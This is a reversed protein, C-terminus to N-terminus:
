RSETKSEDAAAGEGSKNIIDKLSQLGKILKDIQEENEFDLYTTDKVNLENGYLNNQYIDMRYVADTNKNKVRFSVSRERINVKRNYNAKM